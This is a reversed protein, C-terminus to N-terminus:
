LVPGKASWRNLVIGTAALAKWRAFHSTETHAKVAAEDVYQEYIGFMNPQDPQRNVEFRVCGPEKESETAHYRMAAIFEDVRLPDVELVIVINFM